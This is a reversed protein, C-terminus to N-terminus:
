SPELAYRLLEFRSGPLLHYWDTLLQGWTVPLQLQEWAPMSAESLSAYRRPNSMATKIAEAMAAHDAARYVIASETRALHGAYMPHDSVILPTRSSLAEYITMPFGEPYDHRSPVVILDAARMLPVVESHAVTGLYRVRAAIGLEVALAAFKDAEGGGAYTLTLNSGEAVLVAVARMVDGIGKSEILTGIFLLNWPEDVGRSTKAVFQHPSIDHPWDWPLIKRPDVGIKRLSESSPRGHNGVAVIKPHNLLRRLNWASLRARWGQPNFSDALTLLVSEIRDDRLARALVSVLPTRLCLHTPACSQVMEWVRRQDVGGPQNMTIARVGNALETDEEHDAQCCITAVRSSAGVLAGVADVSYRQAYYTEPLGGSLNRYTQGYAGAYQVIVVSKSSPKTM